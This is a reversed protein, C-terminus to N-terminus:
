LVLSCVLLALILFVTNSCPDMAASDIAIWDPLWFDEVIMGYLDLWSGPRPWGKPYIVKGGSLWAGWFGFTGGSVIMHDCMSMLAMDTIPGTFNSYIVDEAVINEKSWQISDSMVLFIVSKHEARFLEMAKQFYGPSAMAYGCQTFYDNGFDSRRVHVGIVTRKKIKISNFFKRAPNMYQSKITFQKRITKDIHHFYKWTQLWGQLTVNHSYVDKRCQWVKDMCDEETLVIENTLNMRTSPSMEFNQLLPHSEDIYTKYGLTAAIGFTSATQFMLNGIRGQMPAHAVYRPVTKDIVPPTGHSDVFKNGVDAPCSSKRFRLPEKILRRLFIPVNCEEIKSIYYTCLWIVIALIIVYKYKLRWRFMDTLRVM